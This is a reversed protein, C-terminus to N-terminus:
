YDVGYLAHADHFATYCDAILEVALDQSVNSGDILARRALDVADNFVDLPAQPPGGSRRVRVAARVVDRSWPGLKKDSVVLPSARGGVREGPQATITTYAGVQLDNLKSPLGVDMDIVWGPRKPAVPWGRALFSGFSVNREQCETLMRNTALRHGLDAEVADLLGDRFQKALEKAVGQPSVIRIARLFAFGFLGVQVVFLTLAYTEIFSSADPSSAAFREVVAIAAIFVLAWSVPWLVGTRRLVARFTAESRLSQTSASQLLFIVLAIVLGVLVGSVQWADALWAAPKRGFYMVMPLHLGIALPVIVGLEANAALRSLKQWMWEMGRMQRMARLERRAHM